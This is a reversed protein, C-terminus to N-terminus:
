NYFSTITGDDHVVGKNYLFRFKKTVKPTRMSFKEDVSLHNMKPCLFQVQKQTKVGKNAMMEFDEFALEEGKSKKFGKLKAIDECGKKRLCYFKCGGLILADFHLMGGEEERLRNIDDNAWGCDKLHDDAENKLSGLADGCGDWMFEEILDPYDNLKADTIVSDTDCMFVQKGKTEIGDVLSWLRCRSYSSIASAVGVNFDKIPLDKLVRAIGYKGIETYNLFKGRNIYDHIDCAGKEQILVSDKDEVRIGWFGYASNIIIKWVQALAKNGAKKAEAKRKFAEEFFSKM